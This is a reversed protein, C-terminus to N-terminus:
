CSKKGPRNRFSRRYTSGNSQYASYFWEPDFRGCKNSAAALNLAILLAFPQSVSTSVSPTYFLDAAGLVDEEELEALAM